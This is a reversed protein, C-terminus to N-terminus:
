PFNNYDPIQTVFRIARNLPFSSPSEGFTYTPPLLFFIEDQRCFFSLLQLKTKQRRCNHPRVSNQVVSKENPSENMQKQSVFSSWPFGIQKSSRIQVKSFCEVAKPFGRPVMPFWPLGCHTSSRIQSKSFCEGTGWFNLFTPSWPLGRSVVPSWQPGLSVVNYQVVAKPNSFCEM